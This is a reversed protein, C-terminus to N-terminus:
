NIKILLLEVSCNPCKYIKQNEVFNGFKGLRIKGHYIIKQDSFGCIICNDAM